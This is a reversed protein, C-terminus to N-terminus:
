SSLGRSGQGPFPVSPPLKLGGKQVHADKELDSIRQQLKADQLERVARELEFIRQHLERFMILQNTPLEPPLIILHEKPQIPMFNVFTQTVYCWLPFRWPLFTLSEGMWTM